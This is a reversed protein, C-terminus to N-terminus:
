RCGRLGAIVEISQGLFSNLLELYKSRRRGHHKPNEVHNEQAASDAMVTDLVPEAHPPEQMLLSGLAYPSPHAGYQLGEPFEWVSSVGRKPVEKRVLKRIRRHHRRQWLRNSHKCNGQVRDATQALPKALCDGHLAFRVRPPL